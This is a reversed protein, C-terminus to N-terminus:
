QKSHKGRLNNYRCVDLAKRLDGTGAIKRAAMEIAIPQMVESEGNQNKVPSEIGSLRDKIIATIENIKYPEFTLVQPNFGKSILRPLFRSTLDLANAIGIIVISKFTHAWEFLSYLVDNERSCLQDIEDLM